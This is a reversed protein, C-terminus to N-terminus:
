HSNIDKWRGTLIQVYTRRFGKNMGAYVFVNISSNAAAFVYIVRYLWTPASRKSDGYYLCLAPTWCLIFLGFVVCLNAIVTMQKRIRDVARYTPQGSDLTTTIDPNSTARVTEEPLVVTTTAGRADDVRRTVRRFHLVIKTYSFTIASICPGTCFPVYTTMVMLYTQRDNMVLCTGLLPSYGYSGFGLLGPLTVIISLFWIM